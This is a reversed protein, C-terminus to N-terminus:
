IQRMSTGGSQSAFVPADDPGTGRLRWLSQTMYGPLSELGIHQRLTPQELLTEAEGLAPKYGMSKFLEPAQILLDDAGPQGLTLLCRGHGLLAHVHEPVESSRAM